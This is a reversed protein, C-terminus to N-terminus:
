SDVGVDHRMYFKPLEQDMSWLVEVPRGVQQRAIAYEEFSELASVLEGDDISDSTRPYVVIKELLPFIDLAFISRNGNITPGSPTTTAVPDVQEQPASESPNVAPLRLMDAVERELGHHLRLARVDRFEEFFERWRVHDRLLPGRFTVPVSICLFIDVLTAFMPPLVRGVHHEESTRFTAIRIQGNTSHPPAFLSTTLSPGWLSLRAARFIIGAERIFKSLHPIDRIEIPLCEPLSIRFGRLSPTILGALFWEIEVWEGYFHFNSLEALLATTIPPRLSIYSFHSKSSVQLERLHPIHQLHTLLSAGGMSCFLGNVSLHLVLLARTVSLLPLLPSLRVNALRLHRLSKISTMFSSALFIPQVDYDMNRLEFSGLAPFHIDLAKCAKDFNKRSGNISIRRVRNPYRLASILRRQAGANWNTTSYEVVIPLHSLHPSELAVARTPTNEAFFLLLRLRRSSEFVICRWKHCVHALKFWGNRNNWVGLPLNQLSQHYHDFIELLVEGPLNGITVPRNPAGNQDGPDVLSGVHRKLPIDTLQIIVIEVQQVYPQALFEEPTTLAMGSRRTISLLVRAADPASQGPTPGNAVCALLGHGSAFWDASHPGGTVTTSRHYGGPRRANYLSCQGTEYRIPDQDLM